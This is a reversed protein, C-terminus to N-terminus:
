IQRDQSLGVSKQFPLCLAILHFAGVAHLSEAAQPAQHSMAPYALSFFALVPAPSYQWIMTAPGM